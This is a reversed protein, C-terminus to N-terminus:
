LTQSRTGITPFAGKHGVIWWQAAYGQYQESWSFLSCYSPFLCNIMSHNFCSCRSVLSSFFHVSSSQTITQTPSWSVTSHKHPSNLYQTCSWVDKSWSSQIIITKPQNWRMIANAFENCLCYRPVFALHPRMSANMTRSCLPSCVYRESIHARWWCSCLVM